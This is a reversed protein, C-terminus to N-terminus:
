YLFEVIIIVIMTVVRQRYHHSLHVEGIFHSIVSSSWVLYFNRAVLPGVSRTCILYENRIEDM